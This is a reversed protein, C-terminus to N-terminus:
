PAPESLERLYGELRNLHQGYLRPLYRPTVWATVWFVVNGAGTM